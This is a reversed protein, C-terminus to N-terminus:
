LIGVLKAAMTGAVSRLGPICVPDCFPMMIILVPRLCLGFRKMSARDTNRDNVLVKM